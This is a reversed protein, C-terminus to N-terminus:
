LRTTVVVFSFKYVVAIFEYGAGSLLSNSGHSRYIMIGPVIKDNRVIDRITTRTPEYYNNNNLIYYIFLM